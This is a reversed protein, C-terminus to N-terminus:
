RRLEEDLPRPNPSVCYQESWGSSSTDGQVWSKGALKQCHLFGELRGRAEEISRLKKGASIEEGNELELNIHYIPVDEDSREGCISGSFGWFEYKEFYKRIVM